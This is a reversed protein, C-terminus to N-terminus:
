HNRSYFQDSVSKLINPNVDQIKSHVARHEEVNSQFNSHLVYVFLAISIFAIWEILAAKEAPKMKKM